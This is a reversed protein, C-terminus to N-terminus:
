GMIVKVTHTKGKELIPVINSSIEKGNVIVQKV